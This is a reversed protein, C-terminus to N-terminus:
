VRRNYFAMTLFEPRDPQLIIVKTFDDIAKSYENLKIYIFGRNYFVEAYDPKLEIAKDFNKLANEYDGASASDVGQDYYVAEVMFVTQNEESDDSSESADTCALHVVLVMLISVLVVNRITM